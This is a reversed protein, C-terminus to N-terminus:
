TEMSKETMRLFWLYPEVLQVKREKSDKRQDNELTFLPHFELLSYNRRTANWPFESDFSNCYFLTGFNSPFISLQSLVRHFELEFSATDRAPFLIRAFNLCYKVFLPFERFIELFLLLDIKNRSYDWLKVFLNARKKKVIVAGIFNRFNRPKSATRDLIKEVDICTCWWSASLFPLLLSM